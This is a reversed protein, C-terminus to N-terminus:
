HFRALGTPVEDLGSALEEESIRWARKIGLKARMEAFAKDAVGSTDAEGSLRYVTGGRTVATMTSPDFSVVPATGRGKDGNLRGLFHVTGEEARFALWDTLIVPVAPRAKNPTQPM